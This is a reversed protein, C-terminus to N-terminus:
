SASLRTSPCTLPFRRYINPILRGVPQLRLVTYLAAIAIAHFVLFSVAYEHWSQEASPDIGAIRYLAAEVPKPIPQLLTPEGAYVRTLYGCPAAGAGM